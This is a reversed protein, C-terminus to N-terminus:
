EVGKLTRTAVIYDLGIKAHILNREGLSGNDANTFALNNEESTYFGEGFWHPLQKLVTEKHDSVVYQDTFFTCEQVPFHYGIFNKDTVIARHSKIGDCYVYDVVDYSIPLWQNQKMVSFFDKYQAISSKREVRNEDEAPQLIDLHTDTKDEYKNNDSVAIRHSIVKGCDIFDVKDFTIPMWTGGYRMVSLTDKYQNAKNLLEIGLKDTKPQLIPIQKMDINYSLFYVFLFGVM